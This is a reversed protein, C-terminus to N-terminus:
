KRTKIKKGRGKKGGKEKKQKGIKMRTKPKQGQPQALARRRPAPPATPHSSPMQASAMSVMLIMALYKM